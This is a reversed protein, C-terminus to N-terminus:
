KGKKFLGVAKQILGGRGPQTKEQNRGHAAVGLVGAWAAWLEWPVEPCPMLPNNYYLPVFIYSGIIAVPFLYGCWPRWGKQWWNGAQLEARMTEAVDKMNKTKEEAIKGELELAKSKLEVMLEPNSSILAAKQEDTMELLSDDSYGSKDKLVTDMLGGVISGSGPLVINAAIPATTKVVGM